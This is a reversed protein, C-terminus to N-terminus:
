YWACFARNRSGFERCFDLACCDAYRTRDFGTVVGFENRGMKCDCGGNAGWERFRKEAEMYDNTSLPDGGGVAGNTLESVSDLPADFISMLRDRSAPATSALMIAVAICILLIFAWRM